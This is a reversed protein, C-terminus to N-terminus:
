KLLVVVRSSCSVDTKGEEDVEPEKSLLPQKEEEGTTKTADKPPTAAKSRWFAYWPVGAPPTPPTKAKVAENSTVVKVNGKGVIQTTAGRQLYALSIISLLYLFLTM